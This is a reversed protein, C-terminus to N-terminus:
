VLLLVTVIVVLLFLSLSGLDASAAAGGGGHADAGCSLVARNSGRGRMAEVSGEKCAVQLSSALNFIQECTAPTPSDSTHM